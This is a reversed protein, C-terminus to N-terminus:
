SRGERSPQQVASDSAINSLATAANDILMRRVDLAEMGEELLMVAFQEVIYSLGPRGGYGTLWARRDYGHSLLVREIRGAQSLRIVDKALRVDVSADRGLGDFLLWAGADALRLQEEPEIAGAHSIITRGAPIGAALAAEFLPVIAAGDAVTMVPTGSQRHLEGIRAVAAGEALSISSGSSGAVLLGPKARTGDMGETLDREIGGIARTAAADGDIWAQGPFGSAAVLHVPAHQALWQLARIDRGAAAVTASVVTRGSVTFFAELDLLAAAPDDLRAHRDSEGPPRWQLHEGVLALGVEDPRIPGLVTMVFPDGAAPIYEDEEWDDQPEFRENAELGYDTDRYIEPNWM